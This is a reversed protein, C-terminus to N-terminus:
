ATVNNQWFVSLQGQLDLSPMVTSFIEYDIVEFSHQGGPLSRVQSRMIVLLVRM